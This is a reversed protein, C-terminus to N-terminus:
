VTPPEPQPMLGLQQLLSLNDYGWWLEKIRGNEIRYISISLNAFSKGTAPYGHLERTLTGRATARKVVLDGEAITADIEVHVDPCGAHIAMWWQKFGERDTAAPAAPDHNAFDAALLEDFLAMNGANFGEDLLRRVLAKNAETSM